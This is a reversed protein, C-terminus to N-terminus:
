NNTSCATLAKKVYCSLKKESNMQPLQLLMLLSLLVILLVVLFCCL